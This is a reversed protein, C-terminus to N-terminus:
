IEIVLMVLLMDPKIGRRDVMGENKVKYIAVGVDLGTLAALIV